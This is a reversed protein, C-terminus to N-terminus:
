RRQQQGNSKKLEAARVDRAGELKTLHAKRQKLSESLGSAADNVQETQMDNLKFADKIQPLKGVEPAAKDDEWAKYIEFPVGIRKAAEDPLLTPINRMSERSRSKKETETAEAVKRFTKLLEGLTEPEAKEAVGNTASTQQSLAANTTVIAATFDAMKKDDKDFGLAKALAIQQADDILEGGNEIRELTGQTLGAERVGNRTSLEGTTLPANLNEQRREEIRADREKNSTPKQAPYKKARKGAEVDDLEAAERAATLFNALANPNGAAGNAAVSDKGGGIKTLEDKVQGPPLEDAIKLALKKDGESIRKEDEEGRAVYADAAAQDQPLTFNLTGTNKAEAEIDELSRKTGGVDAETKSKAADLKAQVAAAASEMAPRANQSVLGSNLIAEVDMAEQENEWLDLKGLDLGKIGAAAAANRKSNFYDKLRAIMQPQTLAM